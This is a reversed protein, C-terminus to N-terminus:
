TGLPIGFESLIEETHEGKLPPAHHLGTPTNAFKIPNAALTATPNGEGQIQYRELMARAAVHPDAFVEAMSNAPGVPVHGGLM